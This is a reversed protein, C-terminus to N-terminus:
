LDPHPNSADLGDISDYDEHTMKFPKAPTWAFGYMRTRMERNYKVCDQDTYHYKRIEYHYGQGDSPRALPVKWREYYPVQLSMVEHDHSEGTGSSMTATDPQKEQAAKRRARDLIVMDIHFTIM